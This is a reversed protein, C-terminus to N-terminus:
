SVIEELCGANELRSVLDDSMFSSDWDGVLILRKEELRRQPGKFFRLPVGPAYTGAPLGPEALGLYQWEHHGEHEHGRRYTVRYGYPGYKGVLKVVVVGERVLGEEDFIRARADVSKGVVTM